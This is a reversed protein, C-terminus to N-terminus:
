YNQETRESVANNFRNLLARQRRRYGKRNMDKRDKRLEIMRKRIKNPDRTLYGAFQTSPDVPKALARELRSTEAERVTDLRDQEAQMQGANNDQIASDYARRLADDAQNFNQRDLSRRNQLAGSYLQGSRAMSNLSQNRTTEYSQQLMRAQSFPNSSDNYGYSQETAQRQRTLGSLANNRTANARAVESEYRADWPLVSTQRPPKPQPIYRKPIFPPM